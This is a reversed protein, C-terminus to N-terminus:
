PDFAADILVTSTSIPVQWAVLLTGLPDVALQANGGAEPGLAVPRSWAGASTSRVAVQFPSQQQEWGVVASGSPGAVVTPIQALQAGTSLQRPRTWCCAGIQTSAADIRGGNAWADTVSGGPSIAIDPWIGAQSALARSSWRGGHPKWVAIDNVVHRAGGGQWVVMADGRADASVQPGPFDVSGSGQGQVEVYRGLQRASGWHASGAPRVAAVIAGYTGSPRLVSGGIWRKWVAVTQGSASVAIEPSLLEDGSKALQQPASWRGASPRLTATEIYSTRAVAALATWVATAEGNRGIAVRPLYAFDTLSSVRVPVSWGGTRSRLVAADIYTLGAGPEVEWIAVVEGKSTAALQPYDSNQGSVSLQVPKSWSHGDGTRRSTMLTQASSGPTALAEWVAVADGPGDFAVDPYTSVLGRASLQFPASWRAQAQRTGLGLCGVFSVLAAVIVLVKVRLGVSNRAHSVM